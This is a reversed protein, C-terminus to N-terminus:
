KEGELKKQSPQASPKLDSFDKSTGQTLDDSVSVREDFVFCDGNWVGERNGTKAFYDLIGGELQYVEEYGKVLRFFFPCDRVYPTAMKYITEIAFFHHREAEIMRKERKVM